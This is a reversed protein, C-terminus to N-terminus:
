RLEDQANIESMECVFYTSSSPTGARHEPPAQRGGARRKGCM